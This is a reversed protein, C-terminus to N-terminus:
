AAQLGSTRSMFKLSLISIRHRHTYAVLPAFIGRHGLDVRGREHVDHKHQEDDEEDRNGHHQLGYAELEGVHDELRRRCLRFVHKQRDTRGIGITIAKFVTNFGVRAHIHRRGVCAGIGVNRIGVAVVIAKDIRYFDHDAAGCEFATRSAAEIDPRFRKLLALAVSAKMLYASM